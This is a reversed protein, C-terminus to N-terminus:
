LAYDFVLIGDLGGTAAAVLADGVRVHAPHPLYADRADSDVFDVVFSHTYGKGLPEPSNNAGGSVQLIGPITDKLAYVSQLLRSADTSSIDPGFKLHVIHRIM